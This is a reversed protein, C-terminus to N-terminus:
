TEVTPDRYEKWRSLEALSTAIENRRKTCGLISKPFFIRVHNPNGTFDDPKVTCPTEKVVDECTFYGWGYFTGDRQEAIRVHEDNYDCENSQPCRNLKDVSVDLENAKPHLSRSPIQGRKRAKKARKRDSISRGLFDNSAVVLKSFRAM